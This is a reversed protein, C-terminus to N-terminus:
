IAVEPQAITLDDMHAAVLQIAERYRSWPRCESHYALEDPDAERLWYEVPQIVCGVGIETPSYPYVIYPQCLVQVPTTKLMVGNGLKVEDGLKVWDGIVAGPFKARTEETNMLQRWDDFVRRLLDRRLQGRSVLALALFSVRPRWARLKDLARM